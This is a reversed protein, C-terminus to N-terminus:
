ALDSCDDQTNSEDAFDDAPPTVVIAPRKDTIPAVSIGGESQGILAQLKNWRKPQDKLLKEATTPSILKYEYMQENKLRMGKLVKEVETPATWGRAGRKGQVLKCNRFQAGALARHEIAQRVGKVWSDILDLSPFLADLRAEDTIKVLALGNHVGQRIVDDRAPVDAPLVDLDEFDANVTRLVQQALARCTGKAKCFRCQKEGPNFASLPLDAVGIELCSGAAEAAIKAEDAFALLEEYSCEWEDLHGIRPQHIAMSVTKVDGLVAAFQDLAGLAYLMMQENREAYVRVGMGYKLDDVDIQATGDPWEILLVVDSTGFSDPQGLFRSYDVRVEVLLEVSVAGRLKFAEIRALVNDVYTQVHGAMDEDIVFNRGEVVIVDGIWDVAKLPSGEVHSELVWSGLEHAATGEAAFDSGNDVIGREAALKPPCRMWGPAGSASFLAHATPGAM